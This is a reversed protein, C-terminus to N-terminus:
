KFDLGSTFSAGCAGGILGIICAAVIVGQSFAARRNIMALAIAIFGPTAGIFFGPVGGRVDAAILGAIINLVGGVCLTLLLGLLWFGWAYPPPAAVPPPQTQVPTPQETMEIGV